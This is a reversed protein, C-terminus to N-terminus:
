HAPVRLVFVKGSAQLITVQFYYEHETSCLSFRLIKGNLLRDHLEGQVDKFSKYKGKGWTHTCTEKASATGGDLVPYCIFLAAYLYKM